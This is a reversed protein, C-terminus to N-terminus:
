DGGIKFGAIPLSKSFPKRFYGEDRLVLTATVVRAGSMTTRQPGRGARM